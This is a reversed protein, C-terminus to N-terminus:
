AAPRETTLRDYLDAFGRVAVAQQIAVVQAQSLVQLWIGVRGGTLPEKLRELTTSAKGTAELVKDFDEQRGNFQAVAAEWPEGIFEIVRRM